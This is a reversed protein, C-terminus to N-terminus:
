HDDEFLTKTSRACCSLQIKFIVEFINTPAQEHKMLMAVGTHINCLASQTANDENGEDPRM